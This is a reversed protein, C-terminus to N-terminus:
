KNLQPLALTAPIGFAGVFKMADRHKDAFAKRAASTDLKGNNELWLIYRHGYGNSNYVAEIIEDDSLKDIIKNQLKWDTNLAHYKGIAQLRADFNTTVAEDAMRVGNLEPYRESLMLFDNDYAGEIIDSEMSSKPLLKDLRHRYEHGLAFDEHGQEVAIHNTRPDYFGAYKSASSKDWIDKDYVSYGRELAADVNSKVTPRILGGHWGVRMNRMRPLVSNYYMQKLEDPTNMDVVQGSTWPLIPDGEEILEKASRHTIIDYLYKKFEDKAGPLSYAANEATIDPTGRAILPESSRLGIPTSTNAPYLKKYGFNHGFIKFPSYIVSGDLLSPNVGTYGEKTLLDIHSGFPAEEFPVEGVKFGTGQPGKYHRGSVWPLGEGPIALVQEEGHTVTTGKWPQGKAFQKRGGHEAGAKFLVFRRNPNVAKEAAVAAERETETLVNTSRTSLENGGMLWDRELPSMRRYAMNPNEPIRYTWPLKNVASNITEGVASGVRGVTNIVSKVGSKLAGAAGFALADTALAAAGEIPQGIAQGIYTSPSTLNVLNWFAEENKQKQQEKRYQERDIAAQKNVRQRETASRTDVNVQATNTRRIAEIAKNLDLVTQRYQNRIPAATRLADPETGDTYHEIPKGADYVAEGAKWRQFRERFAKSDRRM